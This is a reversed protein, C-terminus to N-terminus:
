QIIHTCQWEAAGGDEPTCVCQTAAYNCNTGPVSCTSHQVIPVSDNPTPPPCPNGDSEAPAGDSAAGDGAAADEAGADDGPEAAADFGGGDPPCLGTGPSTM